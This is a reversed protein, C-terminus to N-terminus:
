PHRTDPAVKRWGYSNVTNEQSVRVNTNGINTESPPATPDNEVTGATRPTPADRRPVPVDTPRPAPASRRVRSAGRDACAHCWAAPRVTKWPRVSPVAWWAQVCAPVQSRSVPKECAEGDGGRKGLAWRLFVGGLRSALRSRVVPCLSKARKGIGRGVLDEVDFHWLTTGSASAVDPLRVDGLLKLDFNGAPGDQPPEVQVDTFAGTATLPHLRSVLKLGGVSQARGRRLDAGVGLGQDGQQLVLEAQGVAVDGCEQLVSPTDFQGASRRGVDHPPGALPGLRHIVGELGHNGPPVRHIGILCAPLDAASQVPQPVEHRVDTRQIHNTGTPAHVYRGFDQPDVVGPAHGVVAPRRVISEGLGPMLLADGMQQSPRLFDDLLEGAPRRPERPLDLRAQDVGRPESITTAVSTDAIMSICNGSPSQLFAEIAQQVRPGSAFGAARKAIVQVFM